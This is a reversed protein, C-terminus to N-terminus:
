QPDLGLSPMTQPSDNGSFQPSDAHSVRALVVDAGLGVGTGAVAILGRTNLLVLRHAVALEVGFLFQHLRHIHRVLHHHAVRSRLQLGTLLATTSALAVATIARAVSQHTSPVERARTIQLIM